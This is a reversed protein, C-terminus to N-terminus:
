PAAFGTACDTEIVELTAQVTVSAKLQSVTLGPLPEFLLVSVMLMSVAVAVTPVLVPVIVTLPPPRVRVTFTVSVSLAGVADKVTPDEFKLKM